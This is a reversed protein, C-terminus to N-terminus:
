AGYDDPVGASFLSKFWGWFGHDQLMEEDYHPRRHHHHHHHPHHHHPVPVPTTTKKKNKMKDVMFRMLMDDDEDGPILDTPMGNPTTTQKPKMTSTPQQKEKEKERPSAKTPGVTPTVAPQATTTPPMTTTKPIPQLQYKAIIKALTQIDLNNIDYTEAGSAFRRLNECRRTKYGAFKENWCFCMPLESNKTCYANVATLCKEDASAIFSHGQDWNVTNCAACTDVDMPCQKMKMVVQELSEAKSKFESFAKDQNKEQMFMHMSIANLDAPKLPVDYGGFTKLYANWNKTSNIELAKNSPNVSGNLDRRMIQQTAYTPDISTSMHVEVASHYMVVAFFYTVKKEFPMRENGDQICYLYDGSGVKVSMKCTQIVQSRDVDSFRISLANNDATNGYLKFAVMDFSYMLNDPRFMFFLTYAGSNIGMDSTLPGIVMNDGLFLGNQVDSDLISPARAFTLVRSNVSMNGPVIDYMYKSPPVYSKTSFVSYYFSLATTPSFQLDDISEGGIAVIAKNPPATTATAMTDFQELKKYEVVPEVIDEQTMLSELFRMKENKVERTTDDTFNEIGPCVAGYDVAIVIVILVCTLQLITVPSIDKFIFRKLLLLSIIFVLILELRM